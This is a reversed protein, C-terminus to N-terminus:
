QQLAERSIGKFNCFQSIWENARSIATGEASDNSDNNDNGDDFVEPLVQQLCCASTCKHHSMLHNLRELVTLSKLSKATVPNISNTPKNDNGLMTKGKQKGRFPPCHLHHKMKPDGGSCASCPRDIPLKRDDTNCNHTDPHGLAYGAQFGEWLDQTHVWFYMGDSDVTISYGTRVAFEEFQKKLDEVNDAM